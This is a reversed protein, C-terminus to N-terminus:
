LMSRGITVLVPDWGPLGLTASAVALIFGAAGIGLGFCEAMGWAAIGVTALSSSAGGTFLVLLSAVFLAGAVLPKKFRTASAPLLGRICLAAVAIAVVLALTSLTAPWPHTVM